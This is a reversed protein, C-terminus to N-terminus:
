ALSEFRAMKACFVSMPRPFNEKEVSSCSMTSIHKIELPEVRSYM